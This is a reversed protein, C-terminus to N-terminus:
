CKLQEVLDAFDMLGRLVAAKLSHSWSPSRLPLTADSVLWGNSGRGYGRSPPLQFSQIVTEKV